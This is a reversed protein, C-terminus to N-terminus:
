SGARAAGYIAVDGARFLPPATGPDRGPDHDGLAREHPGIFVYDVHEAELFLPRWPDARPLSYFERVRKSRSAFGPTEAWHGVVTRLRTRAPILSGVSPSALVVSGAPLHAGAWDVVAVEDRARFLPDPQEYATKVGLRVVLYLNSVALVAVVTATAAIAGRARRRGDEPRAPFASVLGAAALIALPVQVGEVFRRQANVPAYVLLAAALVWIWLLGLDRRGRAPWALALMAGYALLYHLPHPSGTVAQAAWARMVPNTRLVDWYYLLLPAPIALAIAAGAAARADLRRSAASRLAVALALVLAVLYILYPYVIALALNAAGAAAWARWRGTAMGNHTLWVAAVLLLTGASFHPYTLMTPFLHAEPMMFDVPLAHLWESRGALFVIWGLGSGTLALLYATWAARRDPLWARAFGFVVLCLALALAVRSLHWMAPVGCGFLRALHGLGLYFAGIFAGPHPDSTFPIHYRWAGAYGEQMKALYSDSDEANLVLGMYELGPRATMYGILYPLNAVGVVALAIVAAVLWERRHAAV